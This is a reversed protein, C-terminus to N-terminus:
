SMTESGSISITFKRRITRKYTSSIYTINSVFIKFVCPIKFKTNDNTTKRSSLMKHHISKKDQTYIIEKSHNVYEVNKNNDIKM